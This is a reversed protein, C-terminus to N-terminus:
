RSVELEELLEVPKELTLLLEQDLLVEAAHIRPLTRRPHVRAGAVVERNVEDIDRGILELQPEPHLRVPEQIRHEPLEVGFPVDHM